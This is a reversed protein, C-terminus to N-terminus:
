DGSVTQETFDPDAEIQDNTFAVQRWNKESFRVTQSEFLPSERDDTEGYTLLAWAELNEGSYDVTMVFSTGFNIRYGEGRLPSGEAVVEGRTPVPETSSSSQSWTVINTVGDDSTGGHLPIREDARQTFQAAGLTSDLAFGAKTITQVARAMAQLIPTTDPNPVAPTR